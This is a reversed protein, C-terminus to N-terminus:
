EDNVKSVLNKGVHGGGGKKGREKSLKRACKSEPRQRWPGRVLPKQSGWGRLSTINREGM